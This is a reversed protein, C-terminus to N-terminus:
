EPQLLLGSLGKGGLVVELCAPNKSWQEGLSEWLSTESLFDASAWPLDDLHELSDPVATKPRGPAEPRVAAAQDQGLFGANSLGM